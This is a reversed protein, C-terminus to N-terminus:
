VKLVFTLESRVRVFFALSRYLCKQSELEPHYPVIFRRRVM